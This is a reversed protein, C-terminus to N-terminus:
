EGELLVHGVADWDAVRVATDPLNGEKNWVQDGFVLVRIGANACEEVHILQDDILTTAGIELCVQAKTMPKGDAMPNAIGLKVTDFAGAFHKDLWAETLAHTATVRASVVSLRYQDSLRGITEGAGSIPELNLHDIQNFFLPIREIAEEKTGGWADWLVEYIMDVRKIITGYNRNHWDFFHGIFDFLVDDLDVAIM